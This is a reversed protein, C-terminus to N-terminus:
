CCDSAVGNDRFMMLHLVFFTIDSTLPRNALCVICRPMRDVSDQSFMQGPSCRCMDGVRGGWHCVCVCMWVERFPHLSASFPICTQGEAVKGERM